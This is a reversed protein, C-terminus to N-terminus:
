ISKSFLSANQTQGQMRLDLKACINRIFPKGAELIKIGYSELSVLGEAQMEALESLCYFLATCQLSDQHWDTAGNCILNNIHRRMIKDEDSQIHGNFLALDGQAIEQCYKEVTKSNQAYATGIDSIASCGLGILMSTHHPTYGMFNRHLTKNQASTYLADSELSFHDMGIDHYGASTFMALGKEYLARKSDKDPLDYETYKRQGPKLWPVHAYSYFAIRDPRLVLAQTITESISKVTQLPLGYVLDFNISEYGISRANNVVQQVQEFCQKRNIIVQIKEDFDQIGFSVRRFGLSHLTSLHEYSTNAPHGEFSLEAQTSVHAKSFISELLYKLNAASFFTPTGGGLHLEKITPKSGFLSLYQDWEALLAQIYPSEVAHNVTIRTNCACYTCLSECFPLHIYLSLGESLGHIKFAEKTLEKWKNKSFNLSDWYPVTPYSTYRPCPVDYKQILSTSATLTVYQKKPLILVTSKLYNHKFNKHWNVKTM